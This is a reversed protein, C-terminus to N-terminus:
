EAAKVTVPKTVSVLSYDMGWGGRTSLRLLYEGPEPWEEFTANVLQQDSKAVTATAVVAKTTPNLLFLGEGANSADPALYKGQVYVTGDVYLVGEEEHEKDAITHIVPDPKSEVNVMKADSPVCNRTEGVTIAVAIVENKTPDFKADKTGFSGKVVPKLVIGDGIHVIYGQRVLSIAKKWSCKEIYEVDEESRNSDEAIAKCFQNFQVIGAPIVRGQWKPNAGALTGTVKTLHYLITIPNM